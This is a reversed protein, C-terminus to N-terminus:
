KMVRFPVNSKLTGSPAVVEVHGTTAGTPVTTSIQTSSKVTFTAAVGNFKVSTAGTLDNGLITVGSGVRGSTPVTEVFPGIGSVVLHYIAGCGYSCSAGTGGASTMGYFTGDTYQVLGGAPAWPGHSKSYDFAYLTTFMGSPTIQFITGCNTSASCSGSGGSLTTGYFNGDSALILPATPVTGPSNLGFEFFITEHGSPTVKFIIGSNGGYGGSETTGYFNGDSGLVVGAHPFAGDTTGGTFNHLTTVQGGAVSVKFVFGCNCTPDGGQRATGYLNGDIAQILNGPEGVVTCYAVAPFSYLTTLVGSASIKFLTGCGNQGGASTKGYFNGDSAQVLGGVPGGGNTADGLFNYLVNTAGGTSKFVTGAGASGGQVTTGYFTGNKGLTLGTEPYQGDLCPPAASQPFFTHVTSLTETTPNLHLITGSPGNCSWGNPGYKGGAETTGWLNGDRGQVLSIPGIFGSNFEGYPATNNNFSVVAKFSVSQSLPTSATAVCALSLAAIQKWL